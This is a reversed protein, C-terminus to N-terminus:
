DKIMELAIEAEMRVDADNDQLAATLPENAENFGLHGLAMAARARVSPSQDQRLAAVVFPEVQPEDSLGLGHAAEARVLADNDKALVNELAAQVDHQLAGHTRGLRVVVMEYPYPDFFPDFGPDFFPGGADAYGVDYSVAPPGSSCCRGLSRAAAARVTEDKDFLMVSSLTRAVPLGQFDALSRAAALRVGSDKDKLALMLDEPAARAESHSLAEAAAERVLASPDSKMAAALPAEAKRVVLMGLAQAAAARAMAAPDSQLMGLLRKKAGVRGLEGLGLAAQARVEPRDDKLAALLEKVGLRGGSESICRAATLRKQWDPDQMAAASKGSSECRVAPTTATPPLVVPALACGMGACAALACM